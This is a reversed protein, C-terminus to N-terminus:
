LRVIVPVYDGPCKKTKLAPAEQKYRQTSKLANGLIGSLLSPPKDTNNEETHM